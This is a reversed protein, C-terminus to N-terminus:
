YRLIFEEKSLKEKKFLCIGFQFVDLTLTIQPHAKIQQWAAHMEENWYIDDFIFISNENAKKLCHHFYNLTAEKRHNGDFFVLELTNQTKIYESLTHDFNGEVITINHINLSLHNNKAVQILGPAGELSTVVAQKNALALYASSIGISTGIELINNVKFYQVLRYILAGYKERIAVKSELLSIQKSLAKGTGFELLEVTSREKALSKRLNRIQKLHENDKGELVNLYFHYVFPSHLYYKTKAQWQYKLFYKFRFFENMPTLKAVVM